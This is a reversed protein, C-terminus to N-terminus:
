AHICCTVSLPLQKLPTDVCTIESARPLPRRPLPPTAVSYLHEFLSLKTSNRSTSTITNDSYKLLQQNLNNVSPTLRKMSLIEM